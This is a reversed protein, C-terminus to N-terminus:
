RDVSRPQQELAAFSDFDRGAFVNRKVYKVGSEAKGKTRARYPACARPLSTGTAASRSSRRTSSSRTARATTTASWPAPTTASCRAPACRRLARLRGRHGRALRGPARQPLGQRLAPALIRAGRRPLVGAGDPRRDPRAESGSTSRCRTAGARDRLARHRAQEARRAQRTGQVARQVTRTSAEHGEDRLLQHVVVANGEATSEFLAVARAQAAEDLARTTPRVQTEPVAGDRLYHRVTNRAIGLVRAIHKYGRGQARLVSMAQVVDREIMPVEDQRPAVDVVRDGM